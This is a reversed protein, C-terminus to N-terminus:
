SGFLGNNALFPQGALQEALHKCASSRFGTNAVPSHRVSDMLGTREETRETREAHRILGDLFTVRAIGTSGNSIYGSLAKTTTATPFHSDRLSKWARSALTKEVAKEGAV